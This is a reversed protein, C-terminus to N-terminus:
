YVQVFVIRRGNDADEITHRIATNSLGYPCWAARDVLPLTCLLGIPLPQHQTTPEAATIQMMFARDSIRVLEFGDYTRRSGTKQTNKLMDIIRTATAWDVIYRTSLDAFAGGFHTLTLAFKGPADIEPTTSATMHMNTIEM